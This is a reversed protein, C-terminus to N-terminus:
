YQPSPSAVVHRVKAEQYKRQLDKMREKTAVLEALLMEVGDMDVDIPTSTSTTSPMSRSPRLADSMHDGRRSARPDTSLVEPEDPGVDVVDAAHVPPINSLSDVPADTPLLDADYFSLSSVM